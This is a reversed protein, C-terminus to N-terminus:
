FTYLFFNSIAIIIIVIKEFNEFSKRNRYKVPRPPM